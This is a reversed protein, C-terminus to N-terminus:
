FKRGGWLYTGIINFGTSPTLTMMCEKTYRCVSDYCAIYELETNYLIEGKGFVNLEWPSTPGVLVFIIKKLAVSIHMGLNYRFVYEDLYYELKNKNLYSQHTGLM